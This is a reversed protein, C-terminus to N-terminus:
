KIVKALVDTERLIKVERGDVEVDSGAYKGYIVEDGVAVSLEGREGSDLLKGPGVALVIGRQPKEQASDPLVIGGATTAEAAVPEVVIREDLPNLNIGKAM